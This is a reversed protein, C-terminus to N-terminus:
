HRRPDGRRAKRGALRASGPPLDSTRTYSFSMAALDLRFRYVGASAIHIRIAQTVSVVSVPLVSAVSDAPIVTTDDGGFDPPDGGFDSNCIFKIKYDAINPAAVSVQWLCPEVHEMEPAKGLNWTFTTDASNVERGGLQIKTITPYGPCVLALLTVGRVSDVGAGVAFAFTTDIYGTAAITVDYSGSKLGIGAFASSATTTALSEALVGARRVEVTAVPFPAAAIDSFGVTGALGGSAAQLLIQGVNTTGSAVTVAALTTDRHTPARLPPAIRVTYTGGDLATARFTGDDSSSRVTAAITSDSAVVDVDAVPLPRSTRGEFVLVGALDGSIDGSEVRYTRTEEDVVFRFSGPFPFSMKIATGTGSVERLPYSTDIQLTQSEDGGYDNPNDFGPPTVFKFLYTTASPIAVMAQWLCGEVQRMVPSVSLDFPPTTFQGAVWISDHASVCGARLRVAGVDVAAEGVQVGAVTSDLYGFAKFLVDYTGAALETVAFIGDTAESSDAGAQAGHLMAQVRARPYPPQAVNEFEVRGHIAGTACSTPDARFLLDKEWLTFLYCGPQPIDLVIGTGTGQVRKVEHEVGVRLVESENWGFDPPNDFTGNTVLKFTHNGATGFRVVATWICGPTKLMSPSAGITWVPDTFDGVAHITNFESVCTSDVGDSSGSPRLLPAVPSRCGFWLAAGLSLTALITSRLRM